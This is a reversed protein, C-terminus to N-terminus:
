GNQTTVKEVVFRFRGTVDDPLPPGVIILEPLRNPFRGRPGLARELRGLDTFPPVHDLGEILLTHLAPFTKPIRSDEAMIELSEASLHDIFSKACASRVTLSHLGTLPGFAHSWLFRPPVMDEISIDLYGLHTLRLTQLVGLLAELVEHEILAMRFSIITEQLEGDSHETESFVESITISFHRPSIQLHLDFLHRLGATRCSNISEILDVPNTDIELDLEEFSMIATEPIVLSKLLAAVMAPRENKISLSTLKSLRAPQFSNDELPEDELANDFELRELQPLSRLIEVVELLTAYHTHTICLYTLHSFSGVVTWSLDCNYLALTRLALCEGSFLDARLVVNALVLSQLNLAPTTWRDSSLLRGGGGSNTPVHLTLDRIRPLHQLFQEIAPNTTEANALVILKATASRDLFAQVWDYQTFDIRSWLQPVGLAMDQWSRCVWSITLVMRGSPKESNDRALLFIESFLEMPIRSVPALRNRATRLLLIRDELTKIEQDILNMANVPRSGTVSM